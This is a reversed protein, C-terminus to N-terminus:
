WRALQPSCCRPTTTWSSHILVANSSLTALDADIDILDGGDVWDGEPSDRYYRRYPGIEDEHSSDILVLGATESAYTAAFLRGVFGGYSHAVVVYPPAIAASKLLAHLENAELLSTVHLGGPRHDSTGTGACDYTCVRSIESLPQMLDSFTSTGPSDYGAEAVITPSGSGQCTWAREYGGVDARGAVAAVSSVSPTPEEQAQHGSQCAPLAIALGLGVGIASRQWREPQM